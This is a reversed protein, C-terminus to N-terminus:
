NAGMGGREVRWAALSGGAGGEGAEGEAAGRPQQLTATIFRDHM